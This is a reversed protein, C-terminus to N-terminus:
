LGNEQQKTKIELGKQDLITILPSKFSELKFLAPIFDPHKIIKCLTFEKYRKKIKRPKKM